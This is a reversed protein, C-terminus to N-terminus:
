YGYIDYYAQFVQAAIPVATESGTGGDEAIVAVVLDPNDVNSFGVFWSHTGEYGNSVYEASGTKGAVSFNYWSLSTATGSSVTEKMFETLLRSEETTMLRKYKSPTTKSVMDGDYTEIHDICYPRMMIGGNAVTATILAMQMPTVLTDGQGIATTMQEGYSSDDDLVFQSTSHQMTTPLSKNFLFEECLSHFKDNDLDLGISAFATNCSHAFASKLDEQGHATNNYCNITVDDVALQSTCDFQFNQFEGPKQRMYSLTTLIKFTSGPPYLGQTARNLLVSSTNDTVLSDWIEEIANPDYDPKSVMALIKGTDPEMAIVAGNYGGLANYAANQLSANLTVVVSDGQMKENEAEDKIQTLVSAHSSLLDNNCSAELGSKGNSAYGIVHSFINAYPYVRKEEGLESVETKALVSGDSSLITGRIYKDTNADQKTNYANSNLEDAKFVNIYGLYGVMLIFLFVFVYTVIGLETNRGKGTVPEPEQEFYVEKVKLPVKERKKKKGTPITGVRISDTTTRITNTDQDTTSRHKTKTNTDQDAMSRRKTKTNAAERQIGGRTDTKETHTTRTRRETMDMEEMDMDTMVETMEATVMMATLMGATIMKVTLVVATLMVATLMVVTLIQDTLVTTAAIGRSITLLVQRIHIDVWRASM